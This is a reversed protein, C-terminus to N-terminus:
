KKNSVTGPPPLNFIEVAGDAVVALRGGDPSLAYNLGDAQIPSAQVNFLQAGTRAEYVTIQQAVALDPTFRQGPSLPISTLIRGLAFRSGGEALKVTEFTDPDPFDYRWREKGDVTYVGRSFRGIDRQCGVMLFEDGSIFKMAPRCTSIFDFLPVRKGEAVAPGYTINWRDPGSQSADLYGEETIPIDLPYSAQQKGGVTAALEDASKAEANLHLFEIDYTKEMASSGIQIAPSGGAAPAPAVRNEMQLVMLKEDPSIQLSVPPNPMTMLLRSALPQQTNLHEIPALLRLELGQRLLFRGHGLPWLYQAHDHLRWDTWALTKVADSGGHLPVGLLLATVEQDDDDPPDNPLRRLLRRANYSLLLHEEDVFNLALTSYNMLLQYQPPSQYGLNALSIRVAPEPPSKPTAALGGFPLSLAGVLLLVRGTRGLLSAHNSAPLSRDATPM